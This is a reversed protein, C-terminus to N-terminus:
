TKGDWVSFCKSSLTIPPESNKGVYQLAKNIMKTFSERSLTKKYNLKSTFIFDNQDKINLIYQIDEIRELIIKQIKQSKLLLVQNGIKILYRDQLIQLCEVKLVLINSIQAHTIALLFFALRLRVNYFDIGNYHSMIKDYFDWSMVNNPCKSKLKPEGRRGVPLLNNMNM